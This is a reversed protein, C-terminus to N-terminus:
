KFWVYIFEPKGIGKGRSVKYLPLKHQPKGLTPLAIREYVDLPINICYKGGKQLHKFTKEFLPKYFENDWKDKNMDEQGVYQEINYYPPSTLVMDYTYKSYDVTLADQFLLKIETDCHKKLYDAMQIYPQELKKNQDIGIYKNINLACAGVLRGGWGMTPDLVTHPRYKHYVEMAITPKFISVAGFYLSFIRYWIAPVTQKSNTDKHYKFFKMVYKKQAHTSKKEWFDYFNLGQKVRTELRERMTFFDVFEAGTRASPKITNMNVHQLNDFDEYAREKTLKPKLM